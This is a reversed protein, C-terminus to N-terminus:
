SADPTVCLGRPQLDREGEEEALTANRPVKTLTMHMCEQARLYSNHAAGRLMCTHSDGELHARVFSKKRVMLHSSIERERERMERQRCIKLCFIEGVKVSIQM